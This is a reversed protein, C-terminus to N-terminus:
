KLRLCLIFGEIQLIRLSNVVQSVLPRIIIVMKLNTPSSTHWIFITKKVPITINAMVLNYLKSSNSEPTSPINKTVELTIANYKTCPLFIFFKTQIASGEIM